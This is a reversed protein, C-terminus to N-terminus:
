RKHGLTKHGASIHLRCRRLLEPSHSLSGAPFPYCANEFFSPFLGQCHQYSTIDDWDLNRFVGKCWGSDLLTLPMTLRQFLTVPRTTDLSVPHGSRPCTALQHCRHHRLLEACAFILQQCLSPPKPSLSTKGFRAITPPLRHLDCLRSFRYFLGASAPRNM